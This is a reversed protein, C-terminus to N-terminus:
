ALIAYTPFTTVGCNNDQQSMLVYGDNGWYTSWSNKVLWYDEGDLTGYGVALVTHDLDELTNGCESDYYVGNSYFSFSRLSADISISIPGQNFIAIKLADADGSTVNVYGSINAYLTQNAVHCYYDNGLYNGYSQEAPIGGHHMIWRYARYDEGGDCGNNGYGWSCDMLAQQSFRVLKGTKLFYSGELTGTTGFSWCSGCVAQDKVPTVAGEIRWDITDPLDTALDDPFPLGGNYENGSSLRGRRRRLDEQSHDAL